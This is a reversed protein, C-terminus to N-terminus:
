EPIYSLEKVYWFQKFERKRLLGFIESVLKAGDEGLSNLLKENQAWLDSPSKGYLVGLYATAEFGQDGIMFNLPDNFGVDKLMDSLRKAAQRFESEKSPAIYMIDWIAFTAEGDALRPSDPAYSLEPDWRIFFTRHTEVTEWMKNLREEGWKDIVDGLGSYISDVENYSDVAYFIYFHFNGDTWASKPYSFKAEKFYTRFEVQLEIFENLRAPNVTAEWCFWLQGKSETEQGWTVISSSYIFLCVVISFLKTKM